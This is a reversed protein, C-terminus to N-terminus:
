PSTPLPSGNVTVKPGDVVVDWFLRGDAQTTALGKVLGLILVAGQMEPAAAGLESAMALAKDLSDASIKLEAAVAGPRLQASGEFALDITPTTLRGPLLVLRPDGALIAANMAAEGEPSVQFSAVFKPDALALRAAKGVGNDTLAVAVKASLPTLRATWPPAMPSNITLGDLDLGFEVRGQDSLGALKVTEGFNAIEAGGFASAIKINQLRLDAGMDNWLPLAQTMLEVLAEPGAGSEAASVGARWLAGIEAARLGAIAAGGPAFDSDVKVEGAAGSQGDPATVTETLKGVSQVLAVDVGGATNTQARTELSLDNQVWHIHSVGNPDAQSFDGNVAGVALKTALFPEQTPDWRGALAFGDFGIDASMPGKDNSAKLSIRPFAQSTWSWGDDDEPKLRYTFADIKLADPPAGLAGAAKGLDWSIVYADGDPEAKIVGKDIAARGFYAAFADEIGSAGESTAEDALASSTAAILALAAIQGRM